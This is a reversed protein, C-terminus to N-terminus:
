APERVPGSLDLYCLAPAVAALRRSLSERRAVVCVGVRRLRLRAVLEAFIHDGSAVVVRDYHCEVFRPDAEALLLRDAGDLGRAVKVLAGPWAAKATFGLSPGCAVVRHDGPRFGVAREYAAVAATVSAPPASSGGALNELDVVHLARGPPVHRGLRRDSLDIVKTVTM